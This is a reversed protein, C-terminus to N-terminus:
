ITILTEKNHGEVPYSLWIANQEKGNRNTELDEIKNLDM